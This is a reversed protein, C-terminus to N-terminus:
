RHHSWYCNRLSWSLIIIDSTSQHQIGRFLFGNDNVAEDTILICKLPIKWVPEILFKKLKVYHVEEKSGRFYVDAHERYPCSSVCSDGHVPFKWTVDSDQHRWRAAAPLAMQLELGEDPSQAAKQAWCSRGKSWGGDLAAMEELVFIGALVHCPAADRNIPQYISSLAPQQIGLPLHLATLNLALMLPGKHRVWLVSWLCSRRLHAAVEAKHTGRSRASHSRKLDLFNNWKRSGNIFPARSWSWRQHQRRWWIYEDNDSNDGDYFGCKNCHSRKCAHMKIMSFICKLTTAMVIIMWGTEVTHRIIASSSM